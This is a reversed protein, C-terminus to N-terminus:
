LEKFSCARCADFVKCKTELSEKESLLIDDQGRVPISAGVGVQKQDTESLPAKKMANALSLVLIVITLRKIAM